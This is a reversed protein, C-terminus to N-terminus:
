EYKAERGNMVAWPNKIGQAKLREVREKRKKDCYESWNHTKIFRQHSRKDIERIKEPNNQRYRQQIEKVKEKHKQRYRKNYELVKEKNEQQWKRKDFM